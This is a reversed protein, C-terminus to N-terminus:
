RKAQISREAAQIINQVLQPSWGREDALKQAANKTIGCIELPTRYGHDALTRARVRGVGRISILSLLDEKCGNPIRGRMIDLIEILEVDADGLISDSQEDNVCIQRAANMLWDAHDVRVRLDGPAVGLEGEIERLTSEDIWQNLTWTSKALSEAEPMYGLANLEHGELLTQDSMANVKQTMMQMQKGSPWLPPFDPTCTILHLLAWPSISRDEIIRCLIKRAKRLGERLILGSLPDLYLRSVREGFPTALYTMAPSDPIVEDSQTTSLEGATQFGIVAPRKPRPKSDVFEQMGVGEVSEASQAWLPKEDDWEEETSIAEITALRKTVSPDEGTREIFRHEALWAIIGDIRGELWDNEVGHGLFTQQFFRGLSDRDRQGGTAIAALVHVRMAPDAALKSEVDEPENKFYLDAIDDAHDLHRAVLWADGLPDYRPRGARGLMQHVEMRPLPRNLGDDWRTLDRVVVRRAPLNVGAALTPTACIAFLIRNRFAEEILRRQGSTLGAHHFAVGGRLAEALREGMLTSEESSEVERALESLASIRSEIDLEVREQNDDKQWSHMRKLFWKGLKTASGEAYRRTSRFILVQGGDKVTSVLVNRLNDGEDDLTFPPPLEMKDVNPGVQLRPEVLGECVTGYRLVVPRWDSQIKKANLWNAIEDANGVTASLALIQADPREHKVRALNVEMTPGRSQDHILHVEDAVVISVQNLFGDRNRMLSDFKESTAVIVDAQDLSVTEGARDGVAIGVTFGLYEGAERLEDVKESALAKLPVLYFARSGPKDVLIRQIIALYAVLSKGSATPIALLLNEGSLAVPLAEAQPPHLRTIDWENVLLDIVNQPLDLKSVEDVMADSGLGDDLLIPTYLRPLRFLGGIGLPKSPLLRLCQLLTLM